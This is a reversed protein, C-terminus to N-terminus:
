YIIVAMGEEALGALARMDEPSLEISGNTGDTEYVSGGFETRWGADSIGSEDGYVLVCEVTEDKEEPLLSSLVVDKQASVLPYIGTETRSGYTPTGTVIDAELAVERNKYAWLKQDTISVEIYSDTLSGNTWGYATHKFVPEITESTGTEFAKEFAKEANEYTANKDLEWGYGCSELEKEEGSNTIFSIDTDYTDYKDAWENILQKVSMKSIYVDSGNNECVKDMPVKEIMDGFSCTIELALIRNWKDALETLSGDEDTVSPEEYMKNEELDFVYHLTNTRLIMPLENGELKAGDMELIDDLTNHVSNPRVRDGASGQDVTKRGDSDVISANQPGEAADTDMFSLSDIAEHFKDLDCWVTPFFTLAEGRYLDEMIEPLRPNNRPRIGLQEATLTEELGGRGTITLTFGSVTNNIAENAEDVTMGSLDTGMYSTGNLFHSDYYVAKSNIYIILLIRLVLVIAAIRWVVKPIGFPGRRKAWKKPIKTMGNRVADFNKKELPKDMDMKRKFPKDMDM